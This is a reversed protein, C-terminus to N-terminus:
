GRHGRRDLRLAALAAIMEVRQAGWPAIRKGGVQFLMADRALRVVARRAMQLRGTAGPPEVAEAEGLDSAGAPSTM